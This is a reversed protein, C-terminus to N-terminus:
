FDSSVGFVPNPRDIREVAFSTEPICAAAITDGFQGASEKNPTVDFLAAESVFDEEGSGSRIGINLSYDGPGPRLNPIRVTVEYQGPDFGASSVCLQARASAMEFGSTSFFAYAFHLNPIRSRVVIKCVFDISSGFAYSWCAGDEALCTIERTIARQRAWNPRQREFLSITRSESSRHRSYAHVITAPRGMEKVSGANLWLVQSCLRLVSDLNHSVFLVTRGGTAVDHMKGLCKKQFEADGVALVEDVILIEPELHAAVAFALRVYMGSSYRKVPTDLFKEVEAFAVIEDFKAKTEARSM